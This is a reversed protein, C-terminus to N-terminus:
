VKWFYDIVQATEDARELYSYHGAGKFVVLGADPMTRELTQGQWLPTDQDADGWLLLTSRAVRAAVPLLDATVTNVLIQRMIGGASQYDASGYRGAYWAQLRAAWAGLGVRRLGDRAAKYATQRVQTLPPTPTLVGASNALVIKLVREAYEAGLILCLRGGFSHGFIQVQTLAQSDLYAIVWAAYDYVTWASPPVASGGFGPLDPIYLRYSRKALREALPLMLESSAGWGHLMVVAAGDNDAGLVRHQTAIGQITLLTTNNM